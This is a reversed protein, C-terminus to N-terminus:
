ENNGRWEGGGDAEALAQEVDCILKDMLTNDWHHAASDIRKVLAVVGALKQELEACREKLAKFKNTTQKARHQWTGMIEPIEGSMEDFLKLLWSLNSNLQKHKQEETAHYLKLETELGECREKLAQYAKYDILYEESM